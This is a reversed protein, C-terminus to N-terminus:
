SSRRQRRLTVLALLVLGLSLLLALSTRLTPVPTYPVIVFPTASLEPASITVTCTGTYGSGTDPNTDVLDFVLSGHAPVTVSFALPGSVPIGFSLGADGAYNTLINAPDFSGFYAVPFINADCGAEPTVTINACVPTASTNYLPASAVYRFPGTSFIAQSKPTACSAVVGDRNLRDNQTATTSADITYSVSVANASPPLAQTNATASNPLGLDNNSGPDSAFAQASVLMIAALVLTRIPQIINM